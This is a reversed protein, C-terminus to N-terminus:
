RNMRRAIIESQKNITVDMMELLRLAAKIKRWLAIIAITRNKIRIAHIMISKLPSNISMCLTRNECPFQVNSAEERNIQMYGVFNQIAIPTM